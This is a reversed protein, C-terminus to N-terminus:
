SSYDLSQIENFCNVGGCEKLKHLCQYSNYRRMTAPNKRKLKYEDFVDETKEINNIEYKEENVQCIIVNKSMSQNQDNEEVTFTLSKTDGDTDGVMVQDMEPIKDKSPDLSVM